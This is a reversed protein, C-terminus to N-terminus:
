EDIEVLAKKAVADFFEDELERVRRRAVRRWPLRSRSRRARRPQNEHVVSRSFARFPVYPDVTTTILATVFLTV